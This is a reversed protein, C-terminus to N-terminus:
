ENNPHWFQQKEAFKVLNLFIIYLVRKKLIGFWDKEDWGEFLKQLKYKKLDQMIKADIEGQKGRNTM